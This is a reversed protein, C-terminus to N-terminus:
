RGVGLLTRLPPAAGGPVFYRRRIIPRLFAYPEHALASVEGPGLPRGWVQLTELQIDATETATDNFMTNVAHGGQGTLGSTDVVGDLYYVMNGLADLTTMWDYWRGAVLTTTGTGTAYWRIKPPSGVIYAGRNGNEAFISGFNDNARYLFRIRCSFTTPLVVTPSLIAGQTTSTTLVSDLGIGRATTAWTSAADTLTGAAPGILSRFPGAGENLLFCAVDPALVSRDIEVSGYPPKVRPDSWLLGRHHGGPM